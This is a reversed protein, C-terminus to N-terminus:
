PTRAAVCPVLKPGGESLNVSSGILNLWERGLPRLTELDEQGQARAITTKGTGSEGTNLVPHNSQAVRSMDEDLLRMVPNSACWMTQQQSKGLATQELNRLQM